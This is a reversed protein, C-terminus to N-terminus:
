IKILWSADQFLMIPQTFTETVARIVGTFTLCFDHGAIYGTPKIKPLWAAIDQKVSEYSHRADIYVLDLSADAHQAAMEVSYGKQKIIIPAYKEQIKNFEAEAEAGTCVVDGRSHPSEWPDVCCISIFKGSRAFLGTSEGIFSGVEVMVLNKGPLAQLMDILGYQQNKARRMRIIPM